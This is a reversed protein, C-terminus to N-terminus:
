RPPSPQRWRGAPRPNQNTWASFSSADTRSAAGRPLPQIALTTAPDVCPGSAVPGAIAQFAIWLRFSRWRENRRCSPPSSQERAEGVQPSRLLGSGGVVGSPTRQPSREIQDPPAGVVLAQASRRRRGSGPPQNCQDLCARVDEAPWDLRVDERQEVLQRGNGLRSSSAEIAASM